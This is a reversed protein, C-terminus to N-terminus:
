VRSLARRLWPIAETVFSPGHHALFDLPRQPTLFVRGNRVASIRSWGREVLVKRLDEEEFPEFIRPEYIIVEPDEAVIRQPDPVLWNCPEAALVNRGGALWLADTIYSYAGFSTPGGLDLEVYSKVPRKAPELAGITRTMKLALRRAEDYRGTVLGVGIVSGIIDAVSVPLPIPYVNFRASLDFASQRQFGTMSLILEPELRSLAELDVTSYTGVTTKSRAEPPRFCFETVGVVSGGLGLIFLTETVAPSLSVIRKLSDPVPIDKGLLESFVRRMIGAQM